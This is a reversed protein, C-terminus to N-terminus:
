EVLSPNKTLVHSILEALSHASFIEMMRHRHYEVTRPSIDLQAAIKKTRKGSCLLKLIQKQRDSLDNELLANSTTGTAIHISGIAQGDAGFLPHCSVAVRIGLHPEFFEEVQHSRTKLARLHPCYAPPRRTGHIVEYCKRGIIGTRVKRLLTKLAANAKIIRYDTDHISILIPVAELILGWQPGGEDSQGSRSIM